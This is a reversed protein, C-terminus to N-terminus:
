IMKESPIESGRAPRAKQGTDLLDRSKKTRKSDPEQEVTVTCGNEEKKKSM